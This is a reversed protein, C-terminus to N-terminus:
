DYQMTGRLIGVRGFEVQMGKSCFQAFAHLGNKGKPYEWIGCDNDTMHLTFEAAKMESELKTKDNALDSLRDGFEELLPDNPLDSSMIAPVSMTPKQCASLM